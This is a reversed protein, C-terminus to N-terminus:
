SLLQSQKYKMILVQGPQSRESCFRHFWSEVVVNSLTLFSPVFDSLLIMLAICTTFRDIGRIYCLFLLWWFIMLELCVFCSLCNAVSWALASKVLNVLKLEISCSTFDSWLVRWDDISFPCCVNSVSSENLRCFHIIIKEKTCNYYAYMTNMCYPLNLYWIIWFQVVTNHRQLRLKQNLRLLVFVALM